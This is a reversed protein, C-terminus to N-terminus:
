NYGPGQLIRMLTTLLIQIARGISVIYKRPRTVFCLHIYLM